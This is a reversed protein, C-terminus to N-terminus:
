SESDECFSHLIQGSVLRMYDEFTQVENQKFEDAPSVYIDMTTQIESHGMQNQVFKLNAGSEILRTAYTHRLVHCSFHPLTDAPNNENM